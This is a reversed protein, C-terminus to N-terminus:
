LELRSGHSHVKSSWLHRFCEKVLVKAMSAAKQDKTPVACTYKTFVDTMVLVNECGDSSPELLKLYIALPQIAMLNGMPMRIRCQPMKLLICQESSKIWKETDCYM